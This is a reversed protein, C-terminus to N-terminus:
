CNERPKGSKRFFFVNGSLHSGQLIRDQLKLSSSLCVSLCVAAVWLIVGAYQVLLTHTSVM